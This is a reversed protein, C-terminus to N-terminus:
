TGDVVGIVISGGFTNAYGVVSKIYKIAKDPLQQKFEVRDVEYKKVLDEVNM